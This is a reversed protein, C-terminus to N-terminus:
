YNRCRKRSIGYLVVKWSESNNLYEIFKEFNILYKAGAKRYVIKNELCLQRIYHVALGTREATQKITLMTPATM